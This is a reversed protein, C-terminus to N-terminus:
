RYRIHASRTEILDRHTDDVQSAIWADILARSWLVRKGVRVGLNGPAQGRNRQQQLAMDTSHLLEAAENIDLLRDEHEPM